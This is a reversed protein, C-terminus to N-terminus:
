QRSLVAEQRMLLFARNKLVGSHLILGAEREVILEVFSKTALNM